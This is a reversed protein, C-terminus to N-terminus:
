APAHLETSGEIKVRCSIGGFANLTPATLEPDLFHLSHPTSVATSLRERVFAEARDHGGLMVTFPKGTPGVGKEANMFNMPESFGRVAPYVGGMRHVTLGSNKLDALILAEFKAKTEASSKLSALARELDAARNEWDTMARAFSTREAASANPAPAAPRTANHDERLWQAQNRCAEIADNLVLEGNPQMSLYMDIHFDGPQEIPFLQTRDIGLDRSIATLVEEDSVSRGLEERLVARTVAVSDRGVLAYGTGDARTGTLVNGGELYALNERTPTGGSLGIAVVNRQNRMQQVLGHNAFNTPLGQSRLRRERDRAMENGAVFWDPSDPHIMTHYSATGDETVDGHDEAWIDTAAFQVLLINELQADSLHSRVREPDPTRVVVRYGETKGVAAMEMVFGLDVDTAEPLSMHMVTPNTTGDEALVRSNPTSGVIDRLRDARAAHDLDITDAVEQRTVPRYPRPVEVDRLRDAPQRVYPGVAPLPTGVSSPRRTPQLEPRIARTLPSEPTPTYLM